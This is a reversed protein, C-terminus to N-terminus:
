HTERETTWARLLETFPCPLPRVRSRAEDLSTSDHMWDSAEDVGLALTWLLLVGDCFFEVRKSSNTSTLPQTEDCIKKEFFLLLM